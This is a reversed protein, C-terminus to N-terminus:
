DFNIFNGMKIASGAANVIGTGLTHAAETQALHEEFGVHLGYRIRIAKPIIMKVVSNRITRNFSLYAICMCGSSWGWLIQSIIILSPSAYFFMMFEYIGAVVAHFACLIVAQFIIQRKTKYLWISTSYGFKFLLNYSLYLYLTSTCVILIINSITDPTSVFFAPDKGTMPDFFWCSYQLSFLVPKVCVLSWFSLMIMAVLVFRFVRKRFIFELPFKPNIEVCREVALFISCVSGSMWSAQAVAGYIFIPFPFKCFSIGIIHFLGTAISNCSLQLMDVISLFLMLQYVPVRLNLKLIALFCLFYLIELVIGTLLFYAGLFPRTTASVNVNEPCDYEPPLSFSHTFVYYLSMNLSM